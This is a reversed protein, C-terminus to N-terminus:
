LPDPRPPEYELRGLVILQELDDLADPLYVAADIDATQRPPMYTNAAVAGAVAHRVGGLGALADSWWDMRETRTRMLESLLSGSGPRQRRAAISILAHRAAARDITVDEADAGTREVPV